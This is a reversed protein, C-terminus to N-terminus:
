ASGTARSCFSATRTPGPPGFWRSRRCPDATIQLYRPAAILRLDAEEWRAFTEGLMSRVALGQATLTVRLRAVLLPAALLALGFAALSVAILWSVVAERLVLWVLGALAIVCGLAIKMLYGRAVRIM